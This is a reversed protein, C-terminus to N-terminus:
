GRCEIEMGPECAVQCARRHPEGNIKVRCEFCTGMGCLPARPQGSVSTRCVEASLLVAVAVTSGESVAVTKGNVHVTLSKRM